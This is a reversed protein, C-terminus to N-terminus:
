REIKEEREDDFRPWDEYLPQEPTRWLGVEMGGAAGMGACVRPIQVIREVEDQLQGLEARKELCTVM